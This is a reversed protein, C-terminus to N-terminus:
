GLEITVESEQCLEKAQLVLAHYEDVRYTFTSEQNSYLRESDLSIAVIRCVNLFELGACCLLLVLILDLFLSILALAVVFILVLSLITVTFLHVVLGLVM